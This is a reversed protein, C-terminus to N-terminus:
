EGQGNPKGTYIFVNGFNRNFTRSFGRSLKAIAATIKQSIGKAGAFSIPFPWPDEEVKFHTELFGCRTFFARQNKRDSLFIHYPPASVERKPRLMKNMGFYFSRVGKAICFNEEIPGEVLLIGGPRLYQKLKHLVTVPDSLHELVNSLRIVDFRGEPQGELLETITYFKTGSNNNNLIAVFEPNFEAGAGKFGHHVANAIFNGAGCGYDLIFAHEGVQKRILDFQYGYSFRLGTLKKYPEPHIFTDAKSDQYSPPYMSLYDSQDPFHDLYILRCNRCRIYRFYKDNFKNVPYVTKSFATHQCFPCPM